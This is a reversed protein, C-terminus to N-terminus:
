LAAELQAVIQDADDQKVCGDAELAKGIAATAAAIARELDARHEESRDLEDELDSDPDDARSPDAAENLLPEGWKRAWASFDRDAACRHLEHRADKLVEDGSADLRSLLTFHDKDAHAATASM